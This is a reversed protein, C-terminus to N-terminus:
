ASQPFLAHLAEFSVGDGRVFAACLRDIQGRDPAHGAARRADDWVTRERTTLRGDVVCAIALLQMPLEREHPALSALSALFADVDDVDTWGPDAVRHRVEHLLRLLNPHLDRTRVIAAAVSAVAARRTAENPPATHTFVEDVLETIISPGMARIRAETLVRWTTVANWLATVPVAVFPLVTRVATRGFARRVLLKVVFNTVGIKAKYALSLLVLQWRKVERHPDVGVRADPDNPLELAARALADILGADSGARDRGFLEIGAVRTLEHVTRLTDWTVFAIEVVSALLSAAGVFAWWAVPDDPWRGNAYVEAGASALGSLAGALAARFVAGRQVRRLGAREHDNLIHVADDSGHAKLRSSRQLLYSHGLRALWPPPAPPAASGDNAREGPAVTANM